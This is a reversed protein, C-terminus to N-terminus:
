PLDKIKTAPGMDLKAEGTNADVRLTPLPENLLVPELYLRLRVDLGARLGNIFVFPVLQNDLGPVSRFTALSEGNSVLGFDRVTDLLKTLRSFDLDIGCFGQAGDRAGGVVESTTEFASIYWTLRGNEQMAGIRVTIAPSSFVSTLLGKVLQEIIEREQGFVTQLEAKTVEKM